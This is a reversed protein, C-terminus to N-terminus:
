PPTGKTIAIKDFLIDSDVAWLRLTHKGPAIVHRTTGIAAARIVNKSWTKSFEAADINVLQPSEEDLAVAYRLESRPDPAHTPICHVAVEVAGTVSLEFDYELVTKPPAAIADLGDIVKSPGTTRTPKEAPLRVLVAPKSVLKLVNNTGPPQFVPLQRPAASMMDRWKGGALTENFYKTETQIQDYARQAHAPDLFKQNMWASCRVPYVVLEYFADRRAPEIKEYLANTKEVLRAFRQLRQQAEQEDFEARLLHEPKCAYNLRYYEDLIERASDDDFFHALSFPSHIDWALRLFFDMAIEAPKIDGVNLVWVNRAGHDYAKTMEEQILAPPTSCLWLYDAPAGWYSVHYYVGAGGARKQEEANSLQRIYGHNDDPWVLTVDDPVKLGHQYLELVEKYPCFIQPVQEVRPNVRKALMERQDDIVRQLRAVKEATTGGGPMGSDHIGRMGITYVNEFRGNEQVREDWYKLINDRNKEYDWPGRAKVDYESVNNRLMQECHSSGMVIAYDDAVQKNEPFHNFAKTCGHMAPWLYNAKLRLLLEFVKAYTKPGIDGTEPEFTKAAWPQLGWDEDNIFIGRYKVSPPGQTFSGAKVVLSERRRPTVDAWWYWPSVGIAESVTFVGFATGRRDSGAIVLANSTATITFSEWKGRLVGATREDILASQGVTGIIVKNPSSTAPKLGTVREIDGALLEAAVHVVKFDNTDFRIEAAKGNWVLPFGGASLRDSIELGGACASGVTVFFLLLLRKM